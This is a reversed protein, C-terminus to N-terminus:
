GTAPVLGAPLPGASLLAALRAASAKSLGGSIQLAASGRIGDPAQRYDIFPVAVIRDDVVIALHQRAGADSGRNALGRTLAEFAQQGAATLDLV